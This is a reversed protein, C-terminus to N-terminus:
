NGGRGHMGGRGGRSALNASSSSGGQQLDLRTEFSLLQSFLESMTILEVRTIPASTVPNFEADLRNMIYGVMEEDDLPKVAAAMEDGLGKTKSYYETISISEKKTTALALRVNVLLARSQSAHMEGIARWAQAV